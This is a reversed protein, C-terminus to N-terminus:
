SILDLSASYADRVDSAPTWTQVGLGDDVGIEITTWDDRTQFCIM